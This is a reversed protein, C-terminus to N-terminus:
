ASVPESKQDWKLGLYICLKIVTADYTETTGSLFDAITRTSIGTERMIRRASIGKLAMAERVEKRIDDTDRMHLSMPRTYSHLLIADISM